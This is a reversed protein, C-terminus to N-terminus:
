RKADGLRPETGAFIRQINSQHRVIVYLGGAIALLIYPLPPQAFLMLLVASVAAMMSSLSVIRFVILVTTFVALSGLGVPWVLALLIGLGSAASKGGKFGIWISKSHGVLAFLGALTMLWPRLAIDGGALAPDAIAEFVWRTLLIAAAGKCMDVALVAFAARRGVTRLVNTAGTGGSGHERIDIGKLAKALIYGTPISGLLYAGVLCGIGAWVWM